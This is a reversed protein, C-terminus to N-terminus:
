IYITLKGLFIKRNSIFLYSVGGGGLTIEHKWKGTNLDDFNDEFIIQGSCITKPASSGSATTASPKCQHTEYIFTSVVVFILIPGKM